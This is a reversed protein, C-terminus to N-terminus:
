KKKANLCDLVDRTLKSTSVTTYVRSITAYDNNLKNIYREVKAVASAAEKQKSAISALNEETNIRSIYASIEQTTMSGIDKQIAIADTKHGDFYNNEKSAIQKTTNKTTAKQEANKKKKTGFISSIGSKKKKRSSTKYGLEEKTRRVGWRQGKVGHHYLEDEFQYEYMYM